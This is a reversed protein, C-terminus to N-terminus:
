NDKVGEDIWKKILAIETPTLPGAPPMNNGDESRFELMEVLESGEADGPIVDGLDILEEFSAYAMGERFDPEVETPNHCTACKATLIPQIDLELSVNDKVVPDGPEVKDNDCAALLLVMFFVSFLKILNKM